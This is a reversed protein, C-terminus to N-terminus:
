SAIAQSVGDETTKIENEITHCGAVLPWLASCPGIQLCLGPAPVICLGCGQCSPFSEDRLMTRYGKQVHM